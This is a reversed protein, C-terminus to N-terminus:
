KRDKKGKAFDGRVVKDDANALVGDLYDAWDQMMKKRELMYDARNYAARVENRDAHALQKEIVDPHYKRQENLITSALARFGHGTMRKAYGMRNLAGLIVGNSLHKEKNAAAFFIFDRRGTIVKIEELLALVQRALPVVHPRDMKMREAPIHWEQRAWDIEEWKAGILEGTRVFTYALMKMAYITLADGCYGNMAQLLGPLESPPICAFNKTKPFALVDRLDGAPNTAIIGRRVAHRFVQQLIQKVRHATELIGKKEVAELCHVIELTTIEQIPRFGLKPFAYLELRRLSRQRHEDEGKMIEFWRRAV